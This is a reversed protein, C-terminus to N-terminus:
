AAYGGDTSTGEGGVLRHPFHIKLTLTECAEMAVAKWPKDVGSIAKRYTSLLLRPNCRVEVIDICLKDVAIYM